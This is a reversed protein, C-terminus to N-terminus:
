KMQNLQVAVAGVAIFAILIALGIVPGVRKGKISHLIYLVDYIVCLAAIVSVIM